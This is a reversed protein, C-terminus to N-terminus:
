KNTILNVVLKVMVDKDAPKSEAVLLVLAALANDNIKREGTKSSFLANNQILYLMFILSGIRKNGDAFPHDKVLFYLLHAAKEELSSYLQKSGFTQNISGLVAKFKEGSEQGFLDGAEKKVVLRKKFIAISKKLDEYALEVPARRSVGEIALEGKDYKNLLAWTGSYDTIIKLLDKEYGEARRSELVNRFLKATDQLEKMKLDHEEKLRKENVAYGKVLYDKLRQTAWIRFQTGRKSNVRYGISIIMDLNYYTTPKNLGISTKQTNAQKLSTKERILEKEAYINRIHAGITKEDKAFLEAMQATNLWVTEGDMQVKLQPGEEAKYIIIEGNKTEEM